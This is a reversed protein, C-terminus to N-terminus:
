QGARTMSSRTSPAVVVPSLRTALAVLANAIAARVQVRRSPSAFQWDESNIWAMQRQHEAYHVRSAMPNEM